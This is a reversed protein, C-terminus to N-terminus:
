LKLSKIEEAVTKVRESRELQVPVAQKLEEVLAFTQSAVEDIRAYADPPIDDQVMTEEDQVDELAAAEEADLEKQAALLDRMQKEIEEPRTRRERAIQLDWRLSQDSLSWIHRDFGEDFPETDVEDENLDELNQGNVRVNRRAMEFTKDIFRHLHALLVQRDEASDNGSLQEDLATLAAITYNRKIRRWDDLTEVSIRPIEERQSDVAM